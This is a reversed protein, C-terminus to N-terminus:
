RRLTNLRKYIDEDDNTKNADVKKMIFENKIFKNKPFSYYQISYSSM